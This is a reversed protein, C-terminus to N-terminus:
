PAPRTCGGANRFTIGPRENLPGNVFFEDPTIGAGGRLTVGQTAAEAFIDDIVSSPPFTRYDNSNATGTFVFIDYLSAPSNLAYAVWSGPPAKEYASVCLVIPTVIYRGGYRRPDSFAVSSIKDITYLRPLLARYLNRKGQLSFFPLSARPVNSGACTTCMYWPKLQNGYGAGIIQLKGWDTVIGTFLVNISETMDASLTANRNLLDRLTVGYSLPLGEPGPLLLAAASLAVTAAGFAPGVGPILSALATVHSALTLNDATLRTGLNQNRLNADFGAAVNSLESTINTQENALQIFQGYILYMNSIFGREIALQTKVAQFDQMSYGAGNRLSLSNYDIKLVPPENVSGLGGDYYTRIPQCSTTCGLAQTVSPYSGLTTLDDYAAQQGSTWAPWDQPQQFGVETWAYAIPSPTQGSSALDTIGSQLTWQNSLNRALLGHVQGTEGDRTRVTTNQIVRGGGQRYGPSNASIFTYQPAASSGALDALAYMLYSNAGYELLTSMLSSSIPSRNAFPPGVTTVIFTEASSGRITSVLGAVANSAGQLSDQNTAFVAARVAGTSRNIGFYILGGKAGNPIGYTYKTGAYTITTATTGQVSPDNPIVNFERFEAPQYNYAERTNLMLSGTMSTLVGSSYSYWATGIAAGATGVISYYGPSINGNFVAYNFGGIPSTDLRPVGDRFTNLIVIRGRPLRILFNWLDAYNAFCTHGNGAATTDTDLTVQNLVVVEASNTNCNLGATTYVRKPFGPGPGVQIEFNSINDPNAGPPLYLTRVAVGAVYKYVPAAVTSAPDYLFRVRDSDGAENPGLASAFLINDGARLLNPDIWGEMCRVGTGCASSYQLSSAPLIADNINVQISSAITDPRLLLGFHFRGGETYTQNFQPDTIVVLRGSSTEQARVSAGSLIISVFSIALIHLTFCCLGRYFPPRTTRM